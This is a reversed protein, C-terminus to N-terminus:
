IVKRQGTAVDVTKEIGKGVQEGATPKALGLKVGVKHAGIGVKEAANHASAEVDRGLSQLLLACLLCCAVLLSAVLTLTAAISEPGAALSAQRAVTAVPRSGHGASRQCSAAAHAAATM